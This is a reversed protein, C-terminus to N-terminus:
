FWFRLGGGVANSGSNGAKYLGFAGSRHHLRAVLELRPYQPLAFTAELMLYNLLKRSDDNNTVPRSKKRSKEITPTRSDYSLGWGLAVTNVLYKDWPFNAWRFSLYPNIEYIPGAPDDRYTFNLTPEVYTMIPSLFKVLPNTDSLRYGVEVSYLSEEALEANGGLVAGFTNHVTRSYGGMVAWSPKATNANAIGFLLLLCLTAAIKRLIMM